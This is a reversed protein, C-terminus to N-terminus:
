PLSSTGSGEAAGMEENIVDIARQAQQYFASDPESYRQVAEFEKLSEKLRNIQLLALGKQFRAPVFTSDEEVVANIADIGRMPNNTLLYAEGMRTKADLDNPREDLVSEYARAVHRAIELAQQRNQERQVQRMWRYLLDAARRRDEVAGTADALDRQLLAARGPAGAELLLNAREIQLRRREVEEADEARDRLSDVRSAVRDPLTEGAEEVLAELDTQPGPAGAEARGGGPPQAGGPSTGSPQPQRQQTSAPSGEEGWSMSQSWQTVFFFGVVLLLATGVVIGIQTGLATTEAEPAATEQQPADAEDDPAEESGTPLDAAVPRTGPPAEAGSLEQLESGCQSCYRSGGPNEWGCQNCYVSPAADVSVEAEESAAPAEEEPAEEDEESPSPDQASAIDTGCLDCKTAGAPVRAGCSPCISSESSM